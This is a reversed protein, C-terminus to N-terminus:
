ILLLPLSVNVNLDYASIRKAFLESMSSDASGVENSKGKEGGGGGAKSEEANKDGESAPPTENMLVPLLCNCRADRNHRTAVTWENQTSARVAKAHCEFHVVVFSSVTSYGEGAMSAGGSASLSPTSSCAAMERATLSEELRARRIFAYIGLEERPASRPGDHCIACQLGTEEVVQAAMEALKNATTIAVQGKENVKMNLSLLYKERFARANQRHREESLRRLERISSVVGDFTTLDYSEVKWEGEADLWENFLDECLLGVQGVSKSNELKHLFALLQRTTHSALAPPFVPPAPDVTGRGRFVPRWM